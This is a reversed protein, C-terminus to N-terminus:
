LKWPVEHKVLMIDAVDRGVDMIPTVAYPVKLLRTLAYYRQCTTYDLFGSHSIHTPLEVNQYTRGLINLM